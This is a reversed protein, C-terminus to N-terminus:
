HQISVLSWTTGNWMLTANSQQTGAYQEALLAGIENPVWTWTFDATVTGDANARVATVDGMEKKALPVIDVIGNARELFRKDSKAKATLAVRGKGDLTIWKAKALKAAVDSAAAHRMSKEIPLSYAAHTFEFEGLEPANAIVERAQAATPPPPAAPKEPAAPAPAEHSCAALLVLLLGALRKM